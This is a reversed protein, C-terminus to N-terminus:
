KKNKKPQKPSPNKAKWEAFDAQIKDWIYKAKVKIPQLTSLEVELNRYFELEQKEMDAM